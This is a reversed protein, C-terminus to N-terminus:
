KNWWQRGRANQSKNRGLRRARDRVEEQSEPQAMELLDLYTDRGIPTQDNFIQQQVAEGGTLKLEVKDGRKVGVDLKMPHERYHKRDFM